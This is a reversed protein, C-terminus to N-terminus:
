RDQAVEPAAIWWALVSNVLVECDGHLSVVQGPIPETGLNKALEDVFGSGPRGGIRFQDLGNCQQPDHDARPATVIADLAPAFTCM